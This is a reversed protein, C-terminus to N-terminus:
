SAPACFGVGEDVWGRYNQQAAIVEAHNPTFLREHTIWNAARYVPESGSGCSTAYFAIGEYVWGPYHTQAYGIEAQNATLLREHTIYNALRYLPQSDSSGAKAARFGVGEYVWGQYNRQAALVENADPTFFREHTIWNAMRYVFPSTIPQWDLSKYVEANATVPLAALTSISLDNLNILKIEPVYGPNIDDSMIAVFHGDPSWIPNTFNHASDGTVAVPASGDLATVYLQGGFTFVLGSGDPAWDPESDVGNWDNSTVYQIGTGDPKAVMIDELSAGGPGNYIWSGFAIFDGSPAWKPTVIIYSSLIKHLGSGDFNVITLGDIHDTVALKLGDNSWAVEVPNIGSVVTRAGTGDSNMVKVLSGAGTIYAIHTGDPSWAPSMYGDDNTGSILTYMNYGTATVSRIEPGPGNVKLFTLIGNGGPFAALAASPAFTGALMGALLVIVRIFNSIRILM